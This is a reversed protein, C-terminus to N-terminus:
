IKIHLRISLLWLLPIICRIRFRFEINAEVDLISHCPSSIKIVFDWAIISIILCFRRATVIHLLFPFLSLSVIVLHISYCFHQKWSDNEHSRNVLCGIPQNINPEFLFGSLEYKWIAKLPFKSIGIHKMEMQLQIGNGHVVTQEM